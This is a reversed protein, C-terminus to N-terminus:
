TAASNTAMSQWRIPAGTTRRLRRPVRSWWNGSAAALAEREAIETRYPAIRSGIQIFTRADKESYKAIAEVTKAHDHTYFILNRDPWVTGAVVEPLLM